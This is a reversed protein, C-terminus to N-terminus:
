RIASHTSIFYQYKMYDKFLFYIMSSMSKHFHFRFDIFKKKNLLSLNRKMRVFYIEFM